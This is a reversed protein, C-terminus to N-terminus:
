LERIRQCSGFSAEFGALYLSGSRFAIRTPVVNDPAIALDPVEPIDAALRQVSGAPAPTNPTQGNQNSTGTAGDAACAALAITSVLFFLQTARRRLMTRLIPARPAPGGS